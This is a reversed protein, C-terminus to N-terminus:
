VFKRGRAIKTFGDARRQPLGRRKHHDARGGRRLRTPDLLFDEREFPHTAARPHKREDDAALRFGLPHALTTKRRRQPEREGGIAGQGRRWGLMHGGVRARVAVALGVREYSEDSTQEAHTEIFQALALQLAAM